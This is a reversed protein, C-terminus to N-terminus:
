TWRNQCKWVERGSIERGAEFEIEWQASYHPFLFLSIGGFIFSHQGKVIALRMLEKNTAVQTKRNEPKRICCWRNHTSWLLWPGSVPIPIRFWFINRVNHYLLQIELCKNYYQFNTFPPMKSAHTFTFIVLSFGFSIKFYIRYRTQIRYSSFCSM